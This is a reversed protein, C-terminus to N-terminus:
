SEYYVEQIIPKYFTYFIIQRSAVNFEFGKQLMSCRHFPFRPHGRIQIQEKVGDERALLM